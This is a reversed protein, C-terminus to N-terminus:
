SKGPQYCFLESTRTAILNASLTLTVNNTRPLFARDTTYDDHFKQRGQRFLSFPTCIKWLTLLFDTMRLFLHIVSTATQCHFSFTRKGISFYACMQTAVDPWLLCRSISTSQHGVLFSKVALYAPFLSFGAVQCPTTTTASFSNPQAKDPSQHFKLKSQWCHIRIPKWWEFRNSEENPLYYIRMM